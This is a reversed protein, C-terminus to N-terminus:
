VIVVESFFCLGFMGWITTIVLKNKIMKYWDHKQGGSLFILQLGLAAKTVCDLNWCKVSM